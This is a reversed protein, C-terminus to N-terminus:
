VEANIKDLIGQCIAVETNYANEAPPRLFEERQMSICDHIMRLEEATFDM